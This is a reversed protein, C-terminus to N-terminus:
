FIRPFRTCTEFRAARLFLGQEGLLSSLTLPRRGIREVLWFGVLTFVLGVAATVASLWIAAPNSRVGSMRIITASYYRCFLVVTSIFHISMHHVFMIASVGTFQQIVQLSCGLILARRAPPHKMIQWLIVGGGALSSPSSSLINAMVVDFCVENMVRRLRLTVAAGLLTISRMLIKM